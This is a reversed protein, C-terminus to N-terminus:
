STHQCAENSRQSRLRRLTTAAATRAYEREADEDLMRVANTAGRFKFAGVHQLNECKLLVERGAIDDLEESSVVATRKVTGAIRQAAAQVDSFEVAYGM